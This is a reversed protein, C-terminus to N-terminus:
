KVLKIILYIEVAHLGFYIFNLAWGKFSVKNIHWHMDHPNHHHNCLCSGGDHHPTCPEGNEIHHNRNTCNM